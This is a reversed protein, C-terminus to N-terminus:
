FIEDHPIELAKGDPFRELLSENWSALTSEDPEGGFNVEYEMLLYIM